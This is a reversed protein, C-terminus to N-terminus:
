YKFTNRPYLQGKKPRASTLKPFTQNSKPFPHSNVHGSVDVTLLTYVEIGILVEYPFVLRLPTQHIGFTTYQAELYQDVYSQPM